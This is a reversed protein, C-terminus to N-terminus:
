ISKVISLLMIVFLMILGPRESRSIRAAQLLGVGANTVSAGLEKGEAMGGVSM